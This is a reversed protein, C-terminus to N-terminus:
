SYSHDREFGSLRWPRPDGCSFSDTSPRRVALRVSVGGARCHDSGCFGAPRRSCATCRMNTNSSGSHLWRFAILNVVFGLTAVALAPLPIMPEPTLLRSSAEIAIWAVLAALTLGNVFAALVQFRHYGYSLREDENRTSLHAAWWALGLAVSDLLMHGADAFLVLANTWLGAILEVVLFVTTLVFARRLMVVDANGHHHDHNHSHDSM